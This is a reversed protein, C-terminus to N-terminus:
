RSISGLELPDIELEGTSASVGISDVNWPVAVTHLESDGIKIKIVGQSGWAVQLSISDGPKVTTASAEETILKGNDVRLIKISLPAKQNATFVQITLRNHTEKSGDQLWLSFTPSWKPDVRLSQVRLTARVASLGTVINHRWESSSGAATDLDLYFLQAPEPSFSELAHSPRSTTGIFLGLLVILTEIKM